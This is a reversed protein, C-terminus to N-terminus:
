APRRRTARKILERVADRATTKDPAKEDVLVELKPDRLRGNEYSPRRSTPM